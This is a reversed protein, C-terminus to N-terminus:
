DALEPREQRVRAESRARSRLWVLAMALVAVTVGLPIIWDDGPFSAWRAFWNDSVLIHGATWSLIATGAWLLIPFRDLLAVVGRSGLLIIPISILLGVAISAFRGNAIAAIAVVNDLSMILDALVIWLIIKVMSHHEPRKRTSEAEQKSILLKLAIWALFVAGATKVGPIRMVWNAIGTLAVLLIVLILSGWVMAHRRHREELPRIIMALIVANDASLLANVFIINLTSLM